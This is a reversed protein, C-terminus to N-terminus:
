EIVYGEIIVRENDPCKVRFRKDRRSGYDLTGGNQLVFVNPYILHWLEQCIPPCLEDLIFHDGKKHYGSRCKSEIIELKVKM